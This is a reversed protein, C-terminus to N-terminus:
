SLKEIYSKLSELEGILPTGIVKSLAQNLEEYQNGTIIIEEDQHERLIEIRHDIEQIIESKLNSHM